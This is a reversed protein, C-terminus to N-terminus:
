DDLTFFPTLTYWSFGATGMCFTTTQPWLRPRFLTIITNFVPLSFLLFALSIGIFNIAIASCTFFRKFILVFFLIICWRKLLHALLVGLANFFLYIDHFSCELRAIQFSGSGVTKASAHFCSTSTRNDVGTTGFASFSQSGSAV